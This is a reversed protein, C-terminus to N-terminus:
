RQIAIPICIYILYIGPRRDVISPSVDCCLDNAKGGNLLRIQQQSSVSRPSQFGMRNDSLIGHDTGIAPIVSGFLLSEARRNNGAMKSSSVM